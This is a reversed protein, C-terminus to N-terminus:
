QGVNKNIRAYKNSIPDFWIIDGTSFGIIVDIQNASRTVLNVDHCLPHAKTFLIKSLPEQQSPHSITRTLVDVSSFVKIASDMDLWHFARNVNAFLM